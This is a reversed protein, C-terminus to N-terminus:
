DAVRQRAQQCLIYDVYMFGATAGTQTVVEVTPTLMIDDPIYDAATSLTLSNVEVLEDDDQAFYFKVTDVGDYHIACRNWTLAAITIGAITDTNATTNSVHTALVAAATKFGMFSADAAIIVGHTDDLTSTDFNSLGVFTSLNIHTNTWRCEFYIEHGAAIQFSEGNVLMNTGDSLTGGVGMAVIGGSLEQSANTGALFSIDGDDNHTVKWRAVTALANISSDLFDDWFTYVDRCDKLVLGEAHVPLGFKLKISM